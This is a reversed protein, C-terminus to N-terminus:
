TPLLLKCPSPVPVPALFPSDRELEDLFPMWDPLAIRSLWRFVQFDCRFRSEAGPHMVKVAVTNGGVYAEDENPCPSKLVARHVQGISASGLAVPDMSEFVEDWELGHESILSTEVISKISEMPWQPISDQVVSFKEIYQSPM